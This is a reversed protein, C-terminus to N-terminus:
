PRTKDAEDGAAQRPHGSFGGTTRTQDEFSYRQGPPPLPGSAAAAPDAPRAEGPQAAPRVPVAAAAAAPVPALAARPVATSTPDSWDQAM